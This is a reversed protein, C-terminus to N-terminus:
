DHEDYSSVPTVICYNVCNFFICHDLIRSVPVLEYDSVHEADVVHFLQDIPERLLRYYPSLRFLDSFLCHKPYRQLLAYTSNFFHVFIIIQGFSHITSDKVDCYRVLYSVSKQRRNYNISHYVHHRIRCRRFAVLCTNISSCGCKDDHLKTLIDSKTFDFNCIPDYGGDIMKDFLNSNKHSHHLM